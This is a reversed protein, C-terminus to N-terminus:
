KPSETPNAAPLPHPKLAGPAPIPNAAPTDGSAPPTAQAPAPASTAPAASTGADPAASAPTGSALGLAKDVAEDLKSIESKAARTDLAINGDKDVVVWHPYTRINFAAAAPESKKALDWTFKSTTFYESANAPNAERVSCSIFRVGKDKYKEVSKAFEEHIGKASIAWTGFFDLVVVSGRLSSLKVTGSVLPLDVDPASRLVPAAPVIPTAPSITASEAPTDVKTAGEKDKDIAPAAPIARSAQVDEKYGDPIAIKFVDDGLEDDVKFETFDTSFRGTVRDSDFIKEVRRPMHDSKGVSYRDKTGRKGSQTVVECSVGNVEAEDEITFDNPILETQFPNPLNFYRLRANNATQLAKGRAESTPRLFVTKAAHDVWQV